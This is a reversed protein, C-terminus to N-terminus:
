NIPLFNPFCDQLQPIGWRTAGESLRCRQVPVISREDFSHLDLHSSWTPQDHPVWFPMILPNIRGCEMTLSFQTGLQHHPYQLIDM